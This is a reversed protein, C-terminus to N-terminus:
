PKLRKALQDEYLSQPVLDAGAGLGETFDEPATNGGDLVLGQLTTQVNIQTTGIVYGDGFQRSRLLGAGNTNWLTNQTGTHGSYSSESGRNVIAWGDDFTSSDILNGLALSHHFESSGMLGPFDKSLWAVGGSSKVRHWVCGTVGFGWNQIFNHRGESANLQDFLIENSQRVEFLYGNGGSGRHEAKALASTTVTVRKADLLLLGGSQLHAGAGKGNKPASPPSFSGVSRVWADKVGHLELVHVQNQAWAADWGVANALGLSEVGVEELYGSQKKISAKDRLKAPYRLPVKFGIVNPAKSTDISAVERRFLPQWKGAFANGAHDWTGNMQHEAIFEPTITFGIVVDDGVKYGSADAVSVETDNTAGDLALPQENSDTVTGGFTIHSLFGMGASKTFALQSSNAGVGRLVIKSASISLTGDLKYIGAPFYVVGGGNLTAANIAKQAAATSDSVGSPDAGYSTVDFPTAVAPTGLPVEGHHYGAYSYDQLRRGQPTAFGLQWDKPYLASRWGSEVGGAGSAATSDGGAGGSGATVSSSMATTDTAGSSAEASSVFGGASSTTALTGDEVTSSGCASSAAAGLLWAFRRM